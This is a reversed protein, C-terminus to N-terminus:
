SPLGGDIVERELIPDYIVVLFGPSLIGLIVVEIWTKGVPPQFNGRAIANIVVFLGLRLAIFM